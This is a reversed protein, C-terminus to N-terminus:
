LENEAVIAKQVNELKKDTSESAKKLIDTTPKQQASAQQYLGLSMLRQSKLNKSQSHQYLANQLKNVYSKSVM